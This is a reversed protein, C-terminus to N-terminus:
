KSENLKELLQKIVILKTDKYCEMCYSELKDWWDIVNKTGTLDHNISGRLEHVM